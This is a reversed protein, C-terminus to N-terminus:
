LRHEVGDILFQNGQKIAVAVVFVTVVDEAVNYLVRFRQVRLEWEALPNERLPKRNRTEVLPQHRLHRKMADVVIRRDRANLAKLHREADESVRIEFM